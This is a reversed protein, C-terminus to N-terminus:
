MGQVLAAKNLALQFQFRTGISDYERYCRRVRADSLAGGPDKQPLLTIVHHNGVNVPSDGLGYPNEIHDHSDTASRSIILDSAKPWTNAAIPRSQVCKPTALSYVSTQLLPYLIM